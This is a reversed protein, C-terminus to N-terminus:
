MTVWHMLINAYYVQTKPEIIAGIKGKTIKSLKWLQMKQSCTGSLSHNLAMKTKTKFWIEVTRIDYLKFGLAEIYM